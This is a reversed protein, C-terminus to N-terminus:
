SAGRLVAVPGPLRRLLPHPRYRGPTAETLLHQDALEALLRAAEARDVHALKAVAPITVDDPLAALLRRQTIPLRDYATDFAERVQVRAALASVTWLPRYQLQTAALRIALPLNGCARVVDRVAGHEAGIRADGAMSRFLAGAEADAPLDLPVVRAGDLGPLRGRSTVLVCCGSGGPLLPLVSRADEADDLVLLVRRQAIAARWRSIRDSLKDPVADPPTGIAVLLRRLAEEVPLPQDQERLNLFLRGDPYRPALRHAAHVALATKGVGGIGVVLVVPMPGAADLVQALEATRGVFDPLDRPLTDVVTGSTGGLVASQARVLEPGPEVGLEDILTARAQQYCALAEARRGDAHLALILAAWTHERLPDEATLTRLLTIADARRDLALLAAAWSQRAHRRLESLRTVAATAQDTGTEEFPTGRWLAVADAYTRAALEHAGRASLVDAENVRRTFLDADLEDEAIVIRYAGPRSQVRGGLMKRLRWVYTKLNRDASPPADRAPWIADILRQASVWQGTEALLTVLLAAPKAAGPEIRDGAPTRVELPGLVCFIVVVDGGVTRYSWDM